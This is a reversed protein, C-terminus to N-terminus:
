MCFSISPKKTPIMASAGANAAACDPLPPLPPEDLPAPELPGPADPEPEPVPDPVEDPPAVVPVGEPPEDVVDGDALGPVAPSKECYMVFASQSFAPPIHCVVEFLHSFFCGYGDLRQCGRQVSLPSHRCAEGSETERRFEQGGNGVGAVLRRRGDLRTRDRRQQGAAVEDALSLRASALRRGERQRNEM